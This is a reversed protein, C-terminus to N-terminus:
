SQQRSHKQKERYMRADALALLADPEQVEDDPFAATGISASVTCTQGDVTAPEAIADCVRDLIEEVESADSLQTLLIVFEDGGLRAVTDHSRICRQIREAVTKLLQDGAAHGLTDNVAKFGNLDIFGLVISQQSRRASALALHLRDILLTRNPLGTLGDYFALAETRAQEEKAASIDVIIWLTEGPSLEIGSVDAWLRSGDKRVMQTQTRYPKGSRLVPYAQQGFAEFSSDDLHMLRPSHGALEGPGYGFITELARNHWVSHRNKLRVMGILGNNLVLRQVDLARLEQIRSGSTSRGQTLSLLDENLRRSLLVSLGVGVLVLMVGGIVLQQVPKDSEAKLAEYPLGAALWWPTGPVQVVATIVDVGDRTRSRGIGAGRAKIFEQLTPTAPQSFNAAEDRSRAVIRMNQDILAATWTVPWRQDRLIGGLASPKLSMHLSYRLVGNVRWPTAFGILLADNLGGPTLGSIYAEEREFVLAAGSSLSIRPPPTGEPRYTTFILQGQRDVASAGAIAPDTEILRAALRRVQTVDGVLAVDQEALLQLRTKVREAERGVAAAAVVARQELNAIAQKEDKQMVEYMLLAAFALLPLTAALQATLQWFMFPREKDIWMADIETNFPDRNTEIGRNSLSPLYKTKSTM